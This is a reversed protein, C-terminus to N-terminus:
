YHRSTTKMIARAENYLPLCEIMEYNDKDEHFIVLYKRVIPTGTITEYLEQYISLQLSYKVYNCDDAHDMLGIGRKYGSYDIRKCRKWDLLVVGEPSHMLCDITGAIHDNHIQMESAILTWDPHDELFRMFQNWEKCNRTPPLKRSLFNDIDFHLQTGLDRSTTGNKNWSEIIQRADMQYYPSEPDQSVGKKVLSSAVAYSNFPKFYRSILQTVSVLERDAYYYKHKGPDFQLQYM